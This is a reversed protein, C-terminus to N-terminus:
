ERGASRAIGILSLHPNGKNWKGCEDAQTMAGVGVGDCM